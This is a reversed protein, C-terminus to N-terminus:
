RGNLGGALNKSNKFDIDILVADYKKICSNKRLFNIWNELAAQAQKIKLSERIQVAMEVYSKIKGAAEESMRNYEARVEEASVKATSIFEEGKIKILRKILGQKWYNEIEKMFFKNKDLDMKQAEQLLLEKTIIDQLITEKSVGPITREAEYKFDDVTVEYDNIRAVIQNKDLKNECGTILAAVLGVVMVFGFKKLNNM